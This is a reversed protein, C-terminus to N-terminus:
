LKSPLCKTRVPVIRLMGAIPMTARIAPTSIEPIVSLEKTLLIMTISFTVITMMTIANPIAKM